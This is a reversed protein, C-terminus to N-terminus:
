HKGGYTNYSVKDYSLDAKDHGPKNEASYGIAIISEVTMEASLGLVEAVHDQAAREADHARLRIQIWCSGLGLDTAALHLVISAISADEVWVDSKDPHACVVIALPATKLFSSGTSKAESLARLKDTDTVVIFEWPRRNVASPSRLAAEILIDVKDSEVPRVEFARVSRRARMLDILM